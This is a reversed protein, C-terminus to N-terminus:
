HQCLPSRPVHTSSNPRAHAGRSLTPSCPDDNLDDCGREGLHKGRNDFIELAGHQRDWEMCCRADRMRSDWFIKMGRRERRAVGRFKEVFDPCCSEINGECAAAAARTQTGSSSSSGSMGSRIKALVIQTCFPVTVLGSTVTIMRISQELAAHLAEGTATKIREVLAAIQRQYDENQSTSIIGIVAAAALTLAILELAGIAVVPAAAAVVAQSRQIPQREPVFLFFVAFILVLSVLRRSM